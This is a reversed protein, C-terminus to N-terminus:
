RPRLPSSRSDLAGGLRDGGCRDSGRFSRPQEAASAGFQRHAGLSAVAPRVVWRGASRRLNRLACYHADAPSAAAPQPHRHSLRRTTRATGAVVRAATDRLRRRDRSAGCQCRRRQPVNALEALSVSSRGDMLRLRRQGGGVAIVVYLTQRGAFVLANEAAISAAASTTFAVSSRLREEGDPALHWRFGTATTEIRLLPADSSLPNSNALLRLANLEPADHLLAAKM